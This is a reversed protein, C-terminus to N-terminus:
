GPYGREDPFSATADLIVGLTGLLRQVERQVRAPGTVLMKVYVAAVVLPVVIHLVDSLQPHGSLLSWLGMAIFGGVIVVVAVPVAVFLSLTGPEPGITGVVLTGGDPAQEIRGIFQADLNGRNNPLERMAVRIVAPSVQGQLPLSGRRGFGAIRWPRRGTAAELRRGCEAPPYPSALVVPPRRLFAFLSRGPLAFLTV